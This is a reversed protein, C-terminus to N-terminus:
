LSDGNMGRLLGWNLELNRISSLTKTAGPSTYGVGCLLPFQWSYPKCCLAGTNMSNHQISVDVQAFEPIMQAHFTDDLGIAIHM